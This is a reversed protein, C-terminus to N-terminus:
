LGMLDEMLFEDYHISAEREIANQIMIIHLEIREELSPSWVAEIVCGEVELGDFVKDPLYTSIRDWLESSGEKKCQLPASKAFGELGTNTKM